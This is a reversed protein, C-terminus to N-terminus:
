RRPTKRAPRPPYFDKPKGKVFWDPPTWRGPIHRFGWAALAQLSPLLDAGKRTLRYAPRPGDNEREILGDAELRKLRDALINTAIREPAKQFDRFQRAGAFMTRLVVLSWKDGVLDLASAVPCPSRYKRTM